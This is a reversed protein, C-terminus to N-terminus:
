RKVFKNKVKLREKDKEEPSVDELEEEIDKEDDETLKFYPIKTLILCVSSNQKKANEFGRFIENITRATRM